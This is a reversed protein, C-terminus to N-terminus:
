RDGGHLMIETVVLLVSLWIWRWPLSPLESRRWAGVIKDFRLAIFTVLSVVGFTGNMIM